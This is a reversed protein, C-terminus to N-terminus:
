CLISSMPLIWISSSVANGHSLFIKGSALSTTPLYYKWSHRDMLWDNWECPLPEWTVMVWSANSRVICPGGDLCPVESYLSGSLELGLRWRQVHFRVTCPCWGWGQGVRWVPSRGTYPSGQWHGRTGNSPVQEFKNMEPGEGTSNSSVQEFKNVESGGGVLASVQQSNFCTRNTCAPLVCGVPISEKLLQNPRPFLYFCVYWLIEVTLTKDRFRSAQCSIVFFGTPKICLQQWGTCVVHMSGSSTHIVHLHHASSTCITM